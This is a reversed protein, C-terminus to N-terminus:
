NNLGLEKQKEEVEEQIAREIPTYTINLEREAKSGDFLLSGHFQTKILDLPMLPPKKSLKSWFTMLGALFLASKEGISKEPMSVGSIQSIVEFYERTTLNQNGVLYKEGINDGKLAAEVIAKAADDIYVYTFKNNSDLIYNVKGRLFMGMKMVDKPDGAGLVAALYLIVLPLNKRKLLDLAKEDGLYKSHAYESMHPGSESEENFPINEPFGYAMVTSIHVVKKVESELVAEMINLTGDVNIRTYKERDHEWFSNLGACNIVIDIGEFVNLLSDKDTIDGYEFMLKQNLNELRSINSNERVLCHVEYFYDKFQKVVATGIFGTAGIILISNIDESM